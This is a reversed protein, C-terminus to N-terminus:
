QVTVDGHNGFNFAIRALTAILAWYPPTQRNAEQQLVLFISDPINSRYHSGGGGLAYDEQGVEVYKVRKECTTRRTASYSDSTRVNLTDKNKNHNHPFQQSTKEGIKKKKGTTSAMKGALWTCESATTRLGNECRNKNYTCHYDCISACKNLRIGGQLEM